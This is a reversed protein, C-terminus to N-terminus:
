CSGLYEGQSLGLQRRLITVEARIVQVAWIGLVVTAIVTSIWAFHSSYPGSFSIGRGLPVLQWFILLIKGTRPSWVDRGSLHGMIQSSVALILILGWGSAMLHLASDLAWDGYYLVLAGALLLWFQSIALAFQLPTLFISRISKWAKTAYAFLLFCTCVGAAWLRWYVAGQIQLSFFAYLSTSAYLFRILLGWRGSCRAGGSFNAIFQESGGIIAPAVAIWFGVLADAPIRLDLLPLLAFGALSHSLFFQAHQNLAARRCLRIWIVLIWAFTVFIGLAAAHRTHDIWYFGTLLLLTPVILIVPSPFRQNVTLGLLKPGAQITFGLTFMAFFLYYQILVHLFKLDAYNTPTDMQGNLMLWLHTGLGAIGIFVAIAGVTFFKDAIPGASFRESFSAPKKRSTIQVLQPQSHSISPM